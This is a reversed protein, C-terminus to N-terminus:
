SFFYMGCRQGQQEMLTM